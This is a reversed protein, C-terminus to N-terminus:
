KEQIFTFFEKLSHAYEKTSFREMFLPIVPHYRRNLEAKWKIDDSLNVIMVNDTFDALKVFSAYENKLTHEIHKHYLVPTHHGSKEEEEVDPPNTLADLASTVNKGYEKELYNWLEDVTGTIYEPYDEVVDHLLGLLLIEAKNDVLDGAMLAVRLIHNLCSDDRRRIDGSHALMVMGLASFIKSNDGDLDLRKSLENLLEETNLTYREQITTIFNM